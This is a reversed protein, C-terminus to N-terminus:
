WVNNLDNYKREYEAYYEKEQRERKLQETEAKMQEIAKEMFNPDHPILSKLKQKKVKKSFVRMTAIDVTLSFRKESDTEEAKAEELEAIEMAILEHLEKLEKKNPSVKGTLIKSLLDNLREKQTTTM